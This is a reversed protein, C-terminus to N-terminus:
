NSTATAAAQKAKLALEEDQQKKLEVAQKQLIQAEEM